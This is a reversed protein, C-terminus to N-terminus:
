RSAQSQAKGACLPSRVTAWQAARATLQAPTEGPEPPHAPVIGGRIVPGLGVAYRAETLVLLSGDPLPHIDNATTLCYTTAGFTAVRDGEGMLAIMVMEGASATSGNALVALPVGAYRQLPHPHELHPDMGALDAVKLLPTRQGARDVMVAANTASFLPRMAVMPPWANGGAQETLDIVLACAHRMAPLAAAAARFDELYRTRQAHTTSAMRRPTWHLALGSPTPVLRFEPVPPPPLVTLEATSQRAPSMTFSHGDTDLTELLEAIKVYLARRNVENAQAEIFTALAAKARELEGPDRPALGRADVLEVARQVVQRALAIPLFEPNQVPTDAMAAPLGGLLAVLVAARVANMIRYPM